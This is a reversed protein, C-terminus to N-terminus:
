LSGLYRLARLGPMFFYAGGKVTVFGRLDRVRTRLPDDPVTFLKDTKDQNVILPDTEHQLGAFTPNNIWTQQILEFQREIDSNLCIFHLGRETGDDVFPNALRHGYSRGRRLIRHRKASQLATQSDPGLADRPNARRIHAGIPCAFGHGDHEYYEFDNESSLTSTGAHPDGSPYKVLPAGSMWRGVFKAALRERAAADSTGDARRTADDLFRWFEAVHQAMQRFVLYTGNRGFDSMGTASPTEAVVGYDNIYGLIFEGAKLVTAHGTRDLQRSLRGSGEIVPQGIGDAFGFHEKTDEQRGASLAAVEQIGRAGVIESRRQGLQAELADEDRAFVLLLIDVPHDANGWSWEKPASDKTDGLIRVRHEAAMGEQFARSFTALATPDLGLKSLGTHTFALNVSFVEQERESKSVEVATRVEDILRALWQRSSAVDSIRLLLYTACPLHGYSSLLFGQIDHHELQAM